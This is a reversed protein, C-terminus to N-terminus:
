PGLPCVSAFTRRNRPDSHPVDSRGIQTSRCRPCLFLTSDAEASATLARADHASVLEGAARRARDAETFWGPESCISMTGLSRGRFRVPVNMIAGIGLSFILKYDAFAAPVEDPSNAIFIEGRDLVQVGWPTSQKPKRSSVPYAGPLSSYLREVEQNAAHLRM